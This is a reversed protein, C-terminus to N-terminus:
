LPLKNNRRGFQRLCVLESVQPLKPKTHPDIPLAKRQPVILHGMMDKWVSLFFGGLGIPIIQAIRNKHYPKLPIRLKQFLQFICDSM